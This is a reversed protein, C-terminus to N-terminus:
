PAMDLTERGDGSNYLFDVEEDTLARNWVGLADVAYLQAPPVDGQEASGVDFANTTSVLTGATSATAVDANVRLSLTNSGANYRLCVYSYTEEDATVNVTGAVSTVGSTTRVSAVIKQASNVGVLFQGSAPSSKWNQVFVDPTSTSSLRVWFSVTFSATFFTTNLVRLFDSGGGFEAASGIVGTTSPVETGYGVAGSLYLHRNLDSVDYRTGSIENMPWFAQLGAYLGTPSPPASHWRNLYSFVSNEEEETLVRDYLVVEAIEGNFGGFAYNHRAAGLAFYDLVSPPNIVAVPGVTTDEDGDNVRTTVNATNRKVCYVIPVNNTVAVGALHQGGVRVGVTDGTDNMACPIFGTIHTDQNAGNSFAAVRGAPSVATQRFVVFLTFSGNLALPGTLASQGATFKLAKKSNITTTYAPRYRANTQFAHHGRNSKDAFQAVVGNLRHVTSEADGQLWLTLGSVTLPTGTTIPTFLEAGDVVTLAPNAYPLNVWATTGDGYKIKNTDIELCPEGAALVPNVQQLAAATGRKLKIDTPM